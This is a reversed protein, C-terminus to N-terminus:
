RVGPGKDVFDRCCIPAAKRFAIAAKTLNQLAVSDTWLFDMPIPEGTIPCPREHEHRM